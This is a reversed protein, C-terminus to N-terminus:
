GHYLGRRGAAAGTPSSSIQANSRGFDPAGAPIPQAGLNGTAPTASSTSARSKPERSSLRPPEFGEARVVSACLCRNEAHLSLAAVLVLSRRDHFDGFSKGVAKLAFELHLHGCSIEFRPDGLAETLELVADLQAAETGAFHRDRM